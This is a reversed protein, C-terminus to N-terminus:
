PRSSAAAITLIPSPLCNEWHRHTAVAIFEKNGPTSFPTNM